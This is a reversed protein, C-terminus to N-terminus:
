GTRLLTSPDIKRAGRRQPKKLLRCDPNKLWRSTIVRDFECFSPNRKPRDLAEQVTSDLVNFKSCQVEFGWESRGNKQCTKECSKIIRTLPM